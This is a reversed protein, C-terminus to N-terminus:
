SAEVAGNVHMGTELNCFGTANLPCQLASVIRACCDHRADVLFPARGISMFAM